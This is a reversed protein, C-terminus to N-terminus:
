YFWAQIDFIEGRFSLWLYKDILAESFNHSIGFFYILCINFLRFSVLLPRIPKSSIIILSIHLFSAAARMRITHLAGSINRAHRLMFLAMPMSM